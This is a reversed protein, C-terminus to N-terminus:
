FYPTMVFTNENLGMELIIPWNLQRILWNNQIRVPGLDRMVARRLKVVKKTKDCDYM